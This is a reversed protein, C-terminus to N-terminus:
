DNVLQKWRYDDADSIIPKDICDIAGIARLYMRMQPEWRNWDRINTLRAPATAKDKIQIVTRLNENIRENTTGFTFGSRQTANTNQDETEQFLENGPATSNVDPADQDQTSHNSLSRLFIEM